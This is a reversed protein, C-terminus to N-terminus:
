REKAFHMEMLDAIMLYEKAMKSEGHTEKVKARFENLDGYFCGCQMRVKGDQCRFFTTTRFFRGFGGIISFDACGKVQANGTVRADGSVNANGDVWANGGVRADGGVYTNGKVRADGYVWAADSVLTNGTVLANGSVRANGGVRANGEVFANGEVLAEGYVWAYGDHSLNDEGEIWGGLDGAKVVGFDRVARIRHLTHTDIVKEEGTFEYKKNM